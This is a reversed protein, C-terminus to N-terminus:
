RDGHAGDGDRRRDGQKTHTNALHQGRSDKGLNHEGHGTDAFKDIVGDQGTIIRALGTSNQDGGNQKDQDIQDSVQQYSSEIGTDSAAESVKAFSGETTECIQCARRRMM